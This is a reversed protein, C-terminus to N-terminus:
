QAVIVIGPQNVRAVGGGELSFRGNWRVKKRVSRDGCPGNQREAGGGDSHFLGIERNMHVASLCAAM